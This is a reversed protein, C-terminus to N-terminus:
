ITSTFNISLNMGHMLRLFTYEVTTVSSKTTVSSYSVSCLCIKWFFCLINSCAKLLLIVLLTSLICFNVFSSARLNQRMAFVHKSVSPVLNQDLNSSFCSDM